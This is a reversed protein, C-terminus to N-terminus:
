GPVGLLNQERLLHLDEKKGRGHLMNTTIKLCSPFNPTKKFLYKKLKIKKNGVWKYVTQLHIKLIVANMRSMLNNVFIDLLYNKSQLSNTFHM